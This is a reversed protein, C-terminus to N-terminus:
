SINKLFSVANASGAVVIDLKGDGDFDAVVPTQPASTVDFDGTKSISGGEGTFVVMKSNLVASMAADLKGDKNFDGPAISTPGLGSLNVRDTKKFGGQGDSLLLTTSFSFSDATIVDDIGDGDFDGARVDETILGSTSAGRRTFSGDGNGTFVHVQQLADNNVAIDLKNDSNFKGVTFAAAVGPIHSISGDDLTGDGKGLWTKVGTPVLSLVDAKGDGNVDAVIAEQQAGELTPYKVVPRFTGDGNNLFTALTTWAQAVVDPTGDGNLDGVGVAGYGNGADGVRTGTNFRGDGKGTMLIPGVGQFDASVIDAKGDGNFDATVTGIASPGPGWSPFQGGSPSDVKPAFNIPAAAHATAPAILGPGILSLAAATAALVLGRPRLPSAHM